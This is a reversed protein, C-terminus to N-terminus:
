AANRAFARDVSFPGGGLVVLVAVMALVLIHFEYGEGGQQGGWNMFFGVKAHVTLVAGIMVAGVGLAAVRTLAGFILGLSGLFEAAIVLAALIAPVGMQHTLFGMTGSIGYGGFWGLAKQAGHAFIVGGLALRLVTATISDNTKVLKFIANSM